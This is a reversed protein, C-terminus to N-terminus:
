NEQRGSGREIIVDGSFTTASVVAGGNGIKFELRKPHGLSRQSGPLLTIPFDSDIDGSFTEVSLTASGNQPLALRVDGSYSRFDYRGKPDLGGAYHVDGSTSNLRVFSSRIGTLELDGSVTEADIDGTVGQLTLDGSVTKAHTSGGLTTATVSGSVSELTTRGAVDQVDVDGSVSHAEVEAGGRASIEGSVSRLILRATNPVTVEFETDGLNGRRPRVNLSVRSASADLDLIGRETSATIRVQDRNWNTVRITGSVLSLDVTGSRGLAVTTDMRLQDDGTDGRDRRGQALLPAAALLAALMVVHSRPRM